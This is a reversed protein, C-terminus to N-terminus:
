VLQTNKCTQRLGAITSSNQVNLEAFSYLSTQIALDRSQGGAEKQYRRHM